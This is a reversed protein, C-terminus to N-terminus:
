DSGGLWLADGAVSTVGSSSFSVGAPVAAGPPSVCWGRSANWSPFSAAVGSNRSDYHEQPWGSGGACALAAAASLARLPWRTPMRKM